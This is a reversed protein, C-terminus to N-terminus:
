NAIPMMPVVVRRKCVTLESSRSFCFDKKPVASFFIESCKGLSSDDHLEIVIVDVKNLWERCGPDSFVVGEAGEIDIKLISIREFGSERLVSGLDVASFLAAEGPKCERVQRSWEGGTRYTQESLTLPTPHSWVASHITRARAGYPRLNMQMMSYNGPDPEIAVLSCGQFRDLFYASSYGVNAGCDVVLKVNTRDDICSYEHNIFIQRFVKRDSSGPRCFLPLHLDKSTLKYPYKPKLLQFFYYRATGVIGLAKLVKLFKYMKILIPPQGVM